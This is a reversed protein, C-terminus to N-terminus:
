RDYVDGLLRASISGDYIESAISWRPRPASRGPHLEKPLTLVRRELEKQWILQM